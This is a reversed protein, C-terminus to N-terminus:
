EIKVVRVTKVASGSQVRLLYAGPMRGLKVTVTATTGGVTWAGDAVPRGTADVTQVQLSASGLGSVRLSVWEGPTPNGLVEVNLSNTPESSAMRVSGGCFAGFNFTISTTVGSQTASIVLPKPDSRLGEEVTGTASTPSTRRVGIASFTIPTGDGGATNFVIVGTACNYTPTTLSLASGPSTTPSTPPTTPPVPPPVTGNCYGVLNFTVSVSVGNQTATIVIPKPDARLGPELTGTTSTPSTRQVGVAQFTIPSGDGGSTNFVIVGTNCNYTPQQMTLAGTPAPPTPDPPLIPAIGQCYAGFDFTYTATISGSQTATIVIPKPDARLGAEVTGSTSTASARQVGVASFTIPTGNGGSTRFVIAGTNCDYTPQLVQLASSAAPTQFVITLNTRGVGGQPDTGTLTFSVVSPVDARCLIAPEPTNVLTYAAPMGIAGYTISNGEPDTFIGAVSLRYNIGTSLSATLNAGLPVPPRNPVSLVNIIFTTSNSLGGEDVGIVSLTYSGIATPRGTINNGVRAMGPPYTGTVTYSMPFGDPDSILSTLAFTSVIGVAATGSVVAGVRTPARNALITLSFATSATLGGPDTATVVVTNVGPQSPVGFLYTGTEDNNFVIGEPLGVVSYTLADGDPDSFKPLEFDYPTNLPVRQNEIGGVPAVPPRNATPSGVDFTQRFTIPYSQGANVSFVITLSSGSTLGTLDARNGSGSTPSVIGNGGLVTWTTLANNANVAYTASGTFSGPGTLRPTAANTVTAGTRTPDLWNSLRTNDTGNGFWSLDFRGYLMRIPACGSAGGHLQGIVRRDSNFLPSGSSGGEMTGSTFIMEHHSEPFTGNWGNYISAGSAFSIKKVSGNPHHIGFTGIYNSTRRDWGLFPIEQNLPLQRNLELLTMDTNPSGARFTAGNITVYINDDMNPTCTASQYKFFFSWNATSATEAPQLQLDGTFDICHFATLFYSRFSQQTDNLMAGSCLYGGGNYVMFIQAVADGEYQYDPACAMNNHCALASRINGYPGFPINYEHIIGSLSIESPGAKLPEHVEIMLRDGMLRDSIYHNDTTNETRTIPGVLTTRAANYLYIQTGEALRLRDFDAGIGLAGPSRLEYYTVREGDVITAKGAQLVNVSAPQVVAIRLPKGAKQDIEDEAKLRAVDVAGAEFSPVGGAPMRAIRSMSPDAPDLKRTFVQAPARLTVLLGFVTFLLLALPPLKLTM